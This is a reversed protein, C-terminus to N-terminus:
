RSPPPAAPPHVLHVTHTPFAFDTGAKEVVDMFSLLVEQRHLAFEDGDATQFWCNITIDLSSESFQAFRVQVSKPWIKPHERLVREFGALVERMQAATTSYVLGITTFFRCRDRVAFTEIRMDAVKGNPLSVVTRDPTRIRTSRLGVSEVTGMVDSDIKVFDGERLPQDIGLAFAGFLDSVTKQAGFAIAIGGIGLGAILSAVPLGLSGLFGIVAIVVLVVKVVRGGLSLLARSHPRSRAWSARELNAAIVDTMRLAGWVLAIALLALLGGIVVRTPAAPLQLLPLVLRIFAIAGLLRAPVALKAILEDDFTTSTHHTLRRAGLGFLAAAARGIGLSIVCTAVLAIWQWWATGAPGIARLPEPIWDV